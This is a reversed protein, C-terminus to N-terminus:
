RIMTCARRGANAVQRLVNQDEVIEDPSVAFNYV